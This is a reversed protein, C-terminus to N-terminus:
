RHIYKLSISKPISSFRKLQFMPWIILWGVARSGGGRQRTGWNGTWCLGAAHEARSKTCFILPTGGSSGHYGPIYCVASFPFLASIPRSTRFLIVAISKLTARKFVIPFERECALISGKAFQQMWKKARMIIEGVAKTAAPRECWQPDTRRFPLWSLTRRPWHDSMWSLVILRQWQWLPFM